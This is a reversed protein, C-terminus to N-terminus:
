RAWGASARTSHGAVSAARRRRSRRGAVTWAVAVGADGAARSRDGAPRLHGEAAARAPRAYILRLPGDVPRRARRPLPIGYPLHFITDSATRCVRSAAREYMRRSYAVYAHVIPDHRVALDYYYEIDGHLIHIVARGFDYRRRSPSISCIAPSTSAAAPRCRARRRPADGCPPERDAAHVRDDDAYRRGASQRYRTDTHLHNHTLVAHYSFADPQRYALLNAIINTMGGMKDPLVYVVSPRDTVAAM